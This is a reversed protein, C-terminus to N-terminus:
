PAVGADAVVQWYGGEGEDDDVKVVLGQEILEDMWVQIQAFSVEDGPFVEAKLKRPNAPHVGLNNCFNWLGIFLLRASPSCELIHENTWFEPKITRICSM